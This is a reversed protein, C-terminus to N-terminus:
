GNDTALEDLIGQAKLLTFQEVMEADLGVLDCYRNVIMASATRYGPKVMLAVSQLAIAVPLTTAPDFEVSDLEDLMETWVRLFAAKERQIDEKEEDAM